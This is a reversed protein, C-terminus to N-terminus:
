KLPHRLGDKQHITSYAIFLAFVSCAVSFLTKEIPAQEKKLLIKM